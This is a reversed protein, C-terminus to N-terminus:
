ISLWIDLIFNDRREVAKWAMCVGLTFFWFLVGEGKAEM